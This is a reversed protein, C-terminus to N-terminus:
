EFIPKIRKSYGSDIFMSDGNENKLETAMIPMYNKFVDAAIELLKQKASEEDEFTINQGSISDFIRFRKHSVPYQGTLRIYMETSEVPFGIDRLKQFAESQPLGFVEANEVDFIEFASVGLEILLEKTIITEDM